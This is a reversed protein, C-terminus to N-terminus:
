KEREELLRDYLWTKVLAQRTVGRIRAAQDLKEIFHVPLDINFRRIELGPRRWDTKSVGLEFISEGEDFRRDFEEATQPLAEAETSSPKTTEHVGSPSLGSETSESPLSPLGSEPKSEASAFTGRKAKTRPNNKSPTKM